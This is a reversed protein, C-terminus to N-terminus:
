RIMAGKPGAHRARVQDVNVPAPAKVHVQVNDIGSASGQYVLYLQSPLVLRILLGLWSGSM